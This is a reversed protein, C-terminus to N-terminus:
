RSVEVTIKSGEIRCLIENAGILFKAHDTTTAYPSNFIPGTKQYRFGWQWMDVMKPEAPKQRYNFGIHWQPGSLHLCDSWDSGRELYQWEISPDAAAIDMLAQHPHPAPRQRYETDSRWTPGLICCEAWGLLHNKFQWQITTDNAAVIINDAHIHRTM